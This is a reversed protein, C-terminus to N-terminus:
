FTVNSAPAPAPAVQTAPVTQVPASQTNGVASAAMGQQTRDKARVFDAPIAPPTVGPPLPLIGKVHAYQKGDTGTEVVIFLQNARGILSETDFRVPPPAGLVGKAIEYLRGKENITANVQEMVRYPKGKSDTANLIWIVRVKNRAGFKGPVNYLENVDAIIGNYAGSTPNEYQPKEVIM